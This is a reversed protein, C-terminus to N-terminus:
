HTRCHLLGALEQAGLHQFQRALIEGVYSRYRHLIQRERVAVQLRPFVTNSDGADDCSGLVALQLYLDVGLGTGSARWEGGSGMRGDEYLYVNVFVQTRDLDHPHDARHGGPTHDVRFGSTALDEAAHDPPQAHRQLFLRLGIVFETADEVVVQGLVVDRHMGIDSVDLHHEHFLM